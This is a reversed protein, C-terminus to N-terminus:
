ECSVEGQVEHGDKTCTSVGNQQSRSEARMEGVFRSVEMEKGFREKSWYVHLTEKARTVAVYFLRREEELEEPLMSKAHPVVGEMVDLIYVHPYELGKASHMTSLAVANPDRNNLEAQKNLENGYEEIHGFWEGFTRFNKAAQLIEEKVEYLEEVKMRRYAAYEELYTEYEVGQMIYNIAAFPAMQRIMRLDFQLKDLRERMWPKEVLTARLAALNIQEKRLLDRGIYRNPKNIIRLLNARSEDGCAYRIYSMVDKAIFHEYLNPMKDKMHFPIGYELFQEVLFRPGINTRFLVAIDAYTGGRAVHARIEDLICRNEEAMNKFSHFVVPEGMQRVAHINKAFRKENHAILRGAAAVIRGTCRYNEELVIRKTGAFEQEFHLMIEPRAGRFRYVSQDDDGVIFLNRAEGVMMKMVEYQVQNIDQFEDILIFRFKNQWARLIDKRQTFLAHCMVLMDEFDLMNQRLLTDQYGKYIRKFVEESCNQSYYHDIDIRDGKVMGIEALLSTVFEKEDPNDLQERDVLEKVIRYRMEEPLINQVSYHYAHKLIKFFVAHFTGFSIPLKEGGMLKEFREQMERAAAKTFTIVLINSPSVHYEEILHRIRHTIVLTKGSGPGAIVMCPGTYHEIAMQQSKSFQARM